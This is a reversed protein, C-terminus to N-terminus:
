SKVKIVTVLFRKEDDEHMAGSISGIAWCIQILSIYHSPKTLYEKLTVKIKCM